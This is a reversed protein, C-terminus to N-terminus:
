HLAFLVASVALATVAALGSGLVVFASGARLVPLGRAFPSGLGFRGLAAGVGLLWPAAVLFALWLTQPAALYGYAIWAPLALGLLVLLPQVTKEAASPYPGLRCLRAEIADVVSM